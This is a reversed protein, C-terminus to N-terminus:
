TQIIIEGKTYTGVQGKFTVATKCVQLGSRPDDRHLRSTVVHLRTSVTEPLRIAEMNTTLSYALCALLLCTGKWAQLQVLAEVSQKSQKVRGSQFCHYDTSGSWMGECGLLHYEETTVAALVWICCIEQYMDLRHYVATLCWYQQRLAFSSRIWQPRHICV